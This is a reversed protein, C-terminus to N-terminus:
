RISRRRCRTSTGGWGDSARRPHPIRPEGSIPERFIPVARIRIDRASCMALRGENFIDRLGTLRPHLGLPRRASDSGVQLVQGAPVAIAPRRSYYFPDTYPVVTSLADNGGSLYLVVLNRSSLGQARAADCLFAPAAFGVTVAAVGDRIFDRRSIQSM